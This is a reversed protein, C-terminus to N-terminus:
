PKWGDFIYTYLEASIQIKGPQAGPQGGSPGGPQNGPQNGPPNGPQGGPRLGPQRGPQGGPPSGPPNADTKIDLSTLVVPQEMEDLAKLFLILGQQQTEVSVSFAIKDGPKLEAAARRGQTAAPNLGKLQAQSKGAAQEIKQIFAQRQEAPTGTQAKVHLKEQLSELSQALRAKERVNRRLEQFQERTTRKGAASERWWARVPILILLYLVIAGVAALGIKVFRKERASLSM